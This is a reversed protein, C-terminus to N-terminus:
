KLWNGTSQALYVCGPTYLWENSTRNFYNQPM